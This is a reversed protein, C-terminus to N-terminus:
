RSISLSKHVLEFTAPTYGLFEGDAEIGVPYESAITVSASKYQSVAPHKIFSGDYINRINRIVDFKSIRKVLTIDLLGDDPIADPLFLMGGGNYKCIGITLNFIEDEIIENGIKINCVTHDSKLLSNLLTYLYIMKGTIGKDRSENVKKTVLADFGLGTVNIFYKITKEGVPNIFTLKGADQLITNGAAIRKVAAAIGGSLSYTKQWDNGTGTPIQSLIIENSHVQDQKLIGNALDHLTGDGGMAVFKRYGKEILETTLQESHNKQESIFEKFSLNNAAFLKRTLEFNKKFGKKGAVPNIIVAWIDKM